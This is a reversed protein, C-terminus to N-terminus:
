SSKAPAFLGFGPNITTFGGDVALNHGSIYKSEDSGFFLAAQAVDEEKLAVGKINSYINAFIDPYLDTIEAPVSPPILYPSVCNVRIGHKGLEAAVNKTLGFIAHKSSTYAHPSVGGISSSVSGISIISGRGAPIMARAAHKMGLFVGTLNVNVVRDFDCKDNDLISLKAKGLIAANNIMIDLKGYKKTAFNVANEVDAEQTVDCHVYSANELGIDECVSQGLEDQIDAVIVKAGHKVFLEVTTKGIGQAAGTILAVKGALRPTAGSELDLNNGMSYSIPNHVHTVTSRLKEPKNIFNSHVHFVSKMYFRVSCPRISETGSAFCALRPPTVAESVPVANMTAM